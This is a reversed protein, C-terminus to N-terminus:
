LNYMGNTIYTNYHYRVYMVHVKILYPLVYMVHVKILYPLVYMVHVKLYETRRALNIVDQNISV